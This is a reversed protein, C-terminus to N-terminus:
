RNQLKPRLILVIEDKVQSRKELMELSHNKFVIKLKDIAKKDITFSVRKNSVRTASKIFLSGSSKLLKSLTNINSIFDTTTKCHQLVNIILVWDFAGPPFPHDLLEAKQVQESQFEADKSRLLVRAMRVAQESRDLGYYEVDTGTFLELNRGEGCGIELVKDRSRFAEKLLLNILDIDAHGVLDQVRRRKEM